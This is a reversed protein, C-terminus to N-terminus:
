SQKWIGKFNFLCQRSPYHLDFFKVTNHSKPYTIARERLKMPRDLRIKFGDMIVVCDDFTGRFCMPLSTLVDESDPWSVVTPVLTVYIATVWDYINKSVVSKSIKFRFALDQLELNLRM